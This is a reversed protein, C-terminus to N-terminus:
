GWECEPCLMAYVPEAKEGSVVEAMKPTLKVTAQGMYMGAPAGPEIGREVLLWVSSKEWSRDKQLASEM